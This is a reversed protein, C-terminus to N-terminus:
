YYASVSSPITSTPLLFSMMAGCNIIQVLYHLIFVVHVKLVVVVLQAGALTLVAGRVAGVGDAVAEELAFASDGEVLLRELLQAEVLVAVALASVAYATLILYYCFHLIHTHITNLKPQTIYHRTVKPTITKVKAASTWKRFSLFM